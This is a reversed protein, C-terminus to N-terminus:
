KSKEKLYFDIFEDFSDFIYLADFTGKELVKHLLDHLKFERLDKNYKIKELESYTLVLIESGRFKRFVYYSTLSSTNKIDNLPSIRYLRFFQLRGKKDKKVGICFQSTLSFTVDSVVTYKAKSDNPRVLKYTVSKFRSNGGEWEETDIEIWEKKVETSLVLKEM